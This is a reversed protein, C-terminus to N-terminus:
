NWGGTPEVFSSGGYANDNQAYSVDVFGRWQGFAGRLTSSVEWTTNRSFSALEPRNLGPDVLIIRVDQEFPNGPADAPVRSTAALANTSTFSLSAGPTGEVESRTYRYDLSWRWRDNFSKDLGLGFSTSQNITGLMSDLAALSIGASGEALDLNY